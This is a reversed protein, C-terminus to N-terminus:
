RDGGLRESLITDVPAAGRRKRQKGLKSPTEATDIKSDSALPAASSDRNSRAKNLFGKLLSGM